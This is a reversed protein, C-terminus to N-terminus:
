DSIEGGDAIDAWSRYPRPPEPQRPAHSDRAYKYHFTTPRDPIPFGAPRVTEGAAAQANWADIQTQTVGYERSGAGAVPDHDFDAQWMDCVHLHWIKWQGEVCLFDVAYKGTDWTFSYGEPADPDERMMIVGTSMWLGRATKLDDAVEIVPTTIQHIELLGPRCEGAGGTFKEAMIDFFELSKEPGFVGLPGYECSADPQEYAFLERGIRDMEGGTHLYQYRGMLNTIEQWARNKLVVQELEQLEM